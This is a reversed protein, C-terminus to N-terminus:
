WLIHYGCKETNERSHPTERRKLHLGDPKHTNHYRMIDSYANKLDGILQAGKGIQPYHYNFRRM